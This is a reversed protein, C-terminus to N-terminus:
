YLWQETDIVVSENDKILLIVKSEYICVEYNLEKFTFIIQYAGRLALDYNCSVTYIAQLDIVKLISERIKEFIKRLNYPAEPPFM